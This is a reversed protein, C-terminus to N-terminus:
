IQTLATVLSKRTFIMQLLHFMGRVIARELLQQMTKSTEEISSKTQLMVSYGTVFEGVYKDM